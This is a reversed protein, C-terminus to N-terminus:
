AAARLAASPAGAYDRCGFRILRLLAIVRDLEQVTPRGRDLVTSNGFDRKWGSLREDLKSPPNHLSSPSVAREKMSRVVSEYPGPTISVDGSFPYQMADVLLISFTVLGTVVGIVLYQTMAHRTGFLFAFLITVMGGVLLLIWMLPPLESSAALLRRRRLMGLDNLRRIMEQYFAVQVANGADLRV